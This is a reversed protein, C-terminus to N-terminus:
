WFCGSEEFVALSDCCAAEEATTLTSFATNAVLCPALKAAVARCNGWLSDRVVDTLDQQGESSITQAAGVLFCLVFLRVTEMVNEAQTFGRPAVNNDACM